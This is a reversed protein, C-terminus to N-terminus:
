MSVRRHGVQDEIVGAEDGPALDVDVVLLDLPLEV